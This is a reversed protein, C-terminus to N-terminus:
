AKPFICYMKWALDEPAKRNCKGYFQACHLDKIELTYVAKGEKCLAFISCEGKEVKSGYTGVCHSLELGWVKLDKTTNPFVVDFGKWKPGILLKVEENTPLEISDEYAAHKQTLWDHAQKLSRLRPMGELLQREQLWVWSAAADLLGEICDWEGEKFSLFTLIKKWNLSSFWKSVDEGEFYLCPSYEFYDGTLTKLQDYSWGLESHLYRAWEHNRQPIHGMVALVETPLPQTWQYGLLNDLIATRSKRRHDYHNNYVAKVAEAVAEAINSTAKAEKLSKPFQVEQGKLATYDESQLLGLVETLTLM